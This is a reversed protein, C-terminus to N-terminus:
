FIVEMRMAGLPYELKSLMLVSDNIAAESTVKFTGAYTIDVNMLVKRWSAINNGWAEYDKHEKSRYLVPESVLHLIM